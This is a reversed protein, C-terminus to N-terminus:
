HLFDLNKDKVDFKDLEIFQEWFESEPVGGVCIVPEKKIPHEFYLRRAHLHISGDINPKPFGYKVDGRIPCGISALQVRIQHSRGTLLTVEVLYHNNMFGLVKYRLEAKQAGDQATDYSTVKNKKRDKVLWHTLKDQKKPPRRKVLAWYVKDIKRSRFLASMRELGKSTKALIVLGSVPRDLRHVAQCFVNGPKDYKKKLFARVKEILHEDGTKDGQVLVGSSKNVIILHNDEYTVTFAKRKKM